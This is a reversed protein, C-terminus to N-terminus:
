TKRHTVMINSIRKTAVLHDIVLLLIEVQEIAIMWEQDVCTLKVAKVARGRDIWPKAVQNLVQAGFFRGIDVPDLIGCVRSLQDITPKVLSTFLQGEQCYGFSCM